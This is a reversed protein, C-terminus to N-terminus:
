RFLQAQVEVKGGLSLVQPHFQALRDFQNLCRALKGLDLRCLVEATIPRKADWFVLSSLLRQAEPSDLLGLLLQAEEPGSCPLHYTTDDFVTPKGRFPGIASFGLRKYLGCTAVKWPAFTYPGVGFVSFRPRGRYISSARADLEDAHRCLYEWTLPARAEIQATDEGPSSQTVIMLRRRRSEEGRMVGAGKLLPFLYTEELDVAEGLGNVLADGERCLEMVRSCDHKIGSRWRYLPRSREDVLLHRLQDYDRADSVLMGDRWGISAIVTEPQDLDHIPCDMSCPKGNLECILLCAGANVGFFRKADILYVASGGIPLRRKWAHALVRRAVHTKLLFALTASRTRCCDVLHLVMWEAIDFNAKGTIADLGARRQFNSKTPMNASGLAGLAASTVWPPNGVFLLPEPSDALLAPWDCCFFDELRLDVKAPIQEQNLRMKARRLYEGQIELGLLHAAEEFRRGAAVLFAGEGCTPEIVTRPQFGRSGIVEVVRRALEDPTQFDGFEVQQSHTGAM